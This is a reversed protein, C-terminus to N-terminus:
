PLLSNNTLYPAPLNLKLKYQGSFAFNEASKIVLVHEDERSVTIKISEIEQGKENLKVLKILGPDLDAPNMQANLTIRISVAIASEPQNEPLSEADYANGGNVSSLLRPSAAPKNEPLSEAGYANRGQVSSLSVQPPAAQTTFCFQYDAFVPSIFLWFFLILGAWKIQGIKKAGTKM